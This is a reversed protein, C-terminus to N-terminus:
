MVMKTSNNSSDGYDLTLVRELLYRVMQQPAGWYGLEFIHYWTYMSILLHQNGTEELKKHFRVSSSYPVLIDWSGQMTITPPLDTGEQIYFSPFAESVNRGGLFRQAFDNSPDSSDGFEEKVGYLDFVSKVGCSRWNGCAPNDMTYALMLALHGGASSGSIFIRNKNLKWEDARNYIDTFATTIQDLMDWASFGYCQYHYQVSSIAYGRELFYAFSWTPGDGVLDPNAPGGKDGWSWSGGHIFFILPAGGEPVEKPLYIDYELFDTFPRSDGAGDCLSVNKSPIDEMYKVTIPEFDGWITGYGGQDMLSSFMWRFISFASRSAMPPEAFNGLNDKILADMNWAQGYVRLWSYPLICWCLFTLTLVAQRLRGWRFYTLFSEAKAPDSSVFIGIGNLPFYILLLFTFVFGGYVNRWVYTEWTFIFEFQLATAVMLWTVFLLEPIRAFRVRCCFGCCITDEDILPFGTGCICEKDVPEDSFPGDAEPDVTIPEGVSNADVDMTHLFVIRSRGGSTRL